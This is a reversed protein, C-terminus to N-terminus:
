RNKLFYRSEKRDSEKQRILFGDKVLRNLYYSAIHKLVKFQEKVGNVTLGIDQAGVNNLYNIIDDEVPHDVRRKSSSRKPTKRFLGLQPRKVPETPTASCRWMTGGPLETNVVEVKVEDEWKDELLEEKEDRANLGIIISKLSNQSMRYLDILTAFQVHMASRIDTMENEFKSCITHTSEAIRKDIFQVMLEDHNPLMTKVFQIYANKQKQNLKITDEKKAKM